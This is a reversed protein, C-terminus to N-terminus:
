TWPAKHERLADYSKMRHWKGNQRNSARMVWSWNRLKGEIEGLRYFKSGAPGVPVFGRTRKKLEGM